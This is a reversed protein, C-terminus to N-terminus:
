KKIILRHGAQLSSPDKIGSDKLIKAVTTGFKEAISDLTDGRRIGYNLNGWEEKEPEEAAPQAEEIEVGDTEIFDVEPSPLTPAKLKSSSKRKAM